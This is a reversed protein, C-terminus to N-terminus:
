YAWCVRAATGPPPWPTPETGNELIYLCLWLPFGAEEWGSSRWPKPDLSSTPRFGRFIPGLFRFKLGSGWTIRVCVLAPSSSLKCSHRSNARGGHSFNLIQGRRQHPPMEPSFHGPFQATAWQGGEGGVLVRSHSRCDKLGDLYASSQCKHRM